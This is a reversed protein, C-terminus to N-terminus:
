FRKQLSESGELPALLFTLLALTSSGTSCNRHINNSQLNTPVTTLYMQTLTPSTETSTEPTFRHLMFDLVTRLFYILNLNYFPPDSLWQRTSCLWQSSTSLTPDTISIAPTLSCRAPTGSISLSMLWCQHICSTTSLLTICRVDYSAM